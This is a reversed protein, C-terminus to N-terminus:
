KDSVFGFWVELHWLINQRSLQSVMLFRGASKLYIWTQVRCLHCATQVPRPAEPLFGRCQGRPIARGAPRVPQPECVPAQLKDACCDCPSVSSITGTRNSFPPMYPSPSWLRLVKQIKSPLPAAHLRPRDGADMRSGRPFLSIAQFSSSAGEESDRRLRQPTGATCASVGGLLPSFTIQLVQTEM